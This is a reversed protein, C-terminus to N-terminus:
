VAATDSELPSAAPAVTPAPKRTGIQRAFTFGAPYYVVHAFKSFPFHVFLAFVFVLHVAYIPYALRVGAFRLIETAFGTIATLGLLGPFFWESYTSQGAARPRRRWMSLTQALGLLLAIGGLNGVIKVPDWIPLSLHNGHWRIGLVPFIETYLAAGTTAAMLGLFGYFIALHSRRRVDSTTWAEFDDHRLVEGATGRLAGALPRRAIGPPLTAQLGNWFKRLGTAVVLGALGVVPLTVVDVWGHGIFHEFLIDGDPLFSGNGSLGAAVLVLLAVLVAPIAIALPLYRASTPIRAMWRPGQLSWAGDVHGPAVESVGAVERHPEATPAPDASGAPADAESPAEAGPPGGAAPPVGSDLPQTAVLVKGDEVRVEYRPEACEAPPGLVAGTRVDFASYHLPCYVINGLLAGQDLNSREHTCTAGIAFFEGEVKALLIRQGDVEFGVMQGEALDNVNVAEVFPM